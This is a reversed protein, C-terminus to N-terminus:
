RHANGDPGRSYTKVKWRNSPRANRLMITTGQFNAMFSLKACVSDASNFRAIDAVTLGYAKRAPWPKIEFENRGMPTRGRHTNAPRVLERHGSAIKNGDTALERESEEGSSVVTLWSCGAGRSFKFTLFAVPCAGLTAQLCIGTSHPSM